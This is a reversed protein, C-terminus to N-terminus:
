LVLNFALSDTTGAASIRLKVNWWGRRDFRLGEVRYRGGSLEATVRPRAVSVGSDNPMWSELALAAGEVPAGTASRVEIKWVLPRNREIPDPSPVMSARYTQNHSPVDSLIAVAPTVLARRAAAGDSASAILLLSAIAAGTAFASLQMRRRAIRGADRKGFVQAQYGVM